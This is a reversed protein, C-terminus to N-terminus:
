ENVFMKNTGLCAALNKYVKLINEKSLDNGLASLIRSSLSGKDLIIKISKLLNSDTITINNFIHKWLENVSCKHNCGFLKLYNEDEIIVHEGEKIVKLFINSLKDEDWIKQEDTLSWIGSILKKLTESILLTIALDASPCEQIDIIRIEITNRDFRAIAGRSNLWENQLINDDDYPKIDEYINRLILEEYEKKTFAREPIVKGAISPIKKQNNRYVELRTDIYGTPKYEIIPTSASLAPIIPLLIRIAAHLKEFEEDNGFPLNIHTSQLNSWGHGRCDFIRNYAEYVQNYEHNWLKSEKFPDMFPHAGTPLLMCNFEDLINNINIVNEFFKLDLNSLTKAPGNTKLEIVHLVLENSWGIDGFEVDSVYEGSVKKILEDAIPSVILTDKDVIMYELEVGYGQFMRLINKM